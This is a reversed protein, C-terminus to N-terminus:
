EVDEEGFVLSVSIDVRGGDGAMVTSWMLWSMSRM